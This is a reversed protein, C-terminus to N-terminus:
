RLWSEHCDRIARAILPVASVVRLKRMVPGAPPLRFPPVSDTVLIRGLEPAALREAAPEIFLGHAAAAVVERAGAHRLARAARLLTEGTAILDDLLLVTMGAVDGAVQLSGSVLGASRRKDIMAFGVPRGMRESLSERWLQARKAGGVDPSAVALPADDALEAVARDFVKHADLHLTPCRFANEFAAVNHAELVIVQATGVAEFLQAVHRLSLPDFPKTRRDKRAYALYPLVATVRAAGHDRLTAIFMLLRCLKEDPSRAPGGHLSAVVYAEDGRPDLLPRLKHEGDDFTRDEHPSIAMDLDAALARALGDDTDLAFILV